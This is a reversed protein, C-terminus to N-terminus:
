RSKRYKRHEVMVGVIHIHQEDSRITEFDQNLPILEFIANGMADTGRLRYKKFTAEEHGNKAVVFDGAQAQVDPDIIVRDGPNFDPRMSDGKIQLAFARGSLDLDTLLYDEADGPHFGDMVTTWLGAQVYDILPIRRAGIQATAVNADSSGGGMLQAVSLELLAAVAPQNKRTPATGDEKEWQQVAGRSVGVKNAFEQETMRLRARGDRILKHISMEVSYDFCKISKSTFISFSALIPPM